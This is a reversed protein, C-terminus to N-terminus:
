RGFHKLVIEELNMKRTEESDLLSFTDYPNLVFKRITCDSYGLALAFRRFNDVLEVFEGESQFSVEVKNEYNSIDEATFIIKDIMM